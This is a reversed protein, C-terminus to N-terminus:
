EDKGTHIIDNHMNFCSWLNATIYSKALKAADIPQAHNQWQSRVFVMHKVFM